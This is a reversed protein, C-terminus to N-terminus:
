DVHSSNLRTSKRDQLTGGLPLNISEKVGPLDGVNISSASLALAFRGRKVVEQDYSLQGGFLDASVGIQSASSLLSFPSLMIRAAEIGFRTPKGTVPRTRVTIDEFKIGFGFAPGASGIEVDLGQAGAVAIAVEKARGYPFFVYLSILFVVVAFGSGIAVRRLLRLREPTMTLNLAM